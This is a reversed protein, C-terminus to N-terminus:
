CKCGRNCGLLQDLSFQVNSLLSGELSSSYRDLGPHKVFLGDGENVASLIGNEKYNGMFVISDGAQLYRLNHLAPINGGEDSGYQHIEVEYPDALKGKVKHDVRAKYTIWYDEDQKVIHKKEKVKGMFVLEAEDSVDFPNIFTTNFSYNNGLIYTIIGDDNPNDGSSQGPPKNYLDNCLLVDVEAPKSPLVFKNNFFAYDYMISRTGLVINRIERHKLGMSCGIANMIISAVRKQKGNALISNILNLNLRITSREIEYTDENYETAIRSIYDNDNEDLIITLISTMGDDRHLDINNIRKNWKEEALKLAKFFGFHAKDGGLVRYRIESLFGDKNIPFRINYYEAM